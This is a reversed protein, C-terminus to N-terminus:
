QTCRLVSSRLLELMGEHLLGEKNHAPTVCCVTGKGYSHTWGGISHGDVSDSQLFVTTKAEDCIVFYHEDLIEFSIEQSHDTPLVGRYNVMQHKTPHYDFYGGLMKIFLSDQPYSALGSHWALFGGGGKVYRSIAVAIEETLWHRVTEDRPNVRDEKFLIVAAPHSDLRELLHDASIYEIHYHGSEVVPELALSLSQQIIDESHYYDGVIAYITKM